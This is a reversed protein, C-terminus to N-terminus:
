RHLAEEQVKEEDKETRRRKRKWEVTRNLILCRWGGWQHEV